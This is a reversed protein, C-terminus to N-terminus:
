AAWQPERTDTILVVLFNVLWLHTFCNSVKIDELSLVMAVNGVKRFVKIATFSACNSWLRFQFM